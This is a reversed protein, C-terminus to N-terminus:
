TNKLFEKLFEALENWDNEFNEKNSFPFTKADEKSMSVNISVFPKENYFLRVIPSFTYPDITKTIKYKNNM